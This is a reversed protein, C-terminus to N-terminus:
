GGVGALAQGLVREDDREDDDDREDREGEEAALQVGDQAGDGVLYVLLGLGITCDCVV